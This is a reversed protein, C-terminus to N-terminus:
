PPPIMRMMEVDHCDHNVLMGRAGKREAFPSVADYDMMGIMLM